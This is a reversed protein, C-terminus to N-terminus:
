IGELLEFVKFVQPELEKVDIEEDLELTITLISKEIGAWTGFSGPTPYGISEEIPYNMIRSIEKIIDLNNTVYKGNTRDTYILKKQELIFLARSVTNPNAKLKLAYERVSPLKSGPKLKESSIDKTIIEAIQLYIPIDNNFTYNM